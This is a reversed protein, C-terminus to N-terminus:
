YGRLFEKWSRRERTLSQKKLQDVKRVFASLKTDTYPGDVDILTGRRGDHTEILYVVSPDGNTGKDDFHYIDEIAVEESGYFSRENETTLKNGIIKFNENYGDESARTLCASLSNMRNLMEDYLIM